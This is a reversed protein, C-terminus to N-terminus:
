MHGAVHEGRLRELSSKALGFGSDASYRWWKVAAEVDVSVGLGQKYRVWITVIKVAPRPLRVYMFGLCYQGLPSGGAASKQALDFAKATDRTTGWGNM